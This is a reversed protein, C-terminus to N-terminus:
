SKFFWKAIEFIIALPLVLTAIGILIFIYQVLPSDNALSKKLFM